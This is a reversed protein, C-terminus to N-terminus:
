SPLSSQICPVSVEMKEPNTQATLFNINLQYSSNNYIKLSYGFFTLPFSVLSRRVRLLGLLSNLWGSLTTYYTGFRLLSGVRLVRLSKWGNESAATALNFM